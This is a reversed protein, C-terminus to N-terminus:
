YQSIVYDFAARNKMSYRMVNMLAEQFDSHNNILETVKSFVSEAKKSKSSYDGLLGSLKDLNKFINMINVNHLDCIDICYDIQERLSRIEIIDDISDSVSAMAFAKQLEDNNEDLDGGANFSAASSTMLIKVKKSETKKVMKPQGNEIIENGNKDLKPEYYVETQQVYGEAAEIIDTRYKMNKAYLKIRGIVFQAVSIINSEINGFEDVKTGFQPDYGNGDQEAEVISIYVDHLLDHAKEYKIDYSRILGILTQYNDIIYRSAEQNVDPEIITATYGFKSSESGILM